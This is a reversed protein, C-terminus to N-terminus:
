ETEKPEVGNGGCVSCCKYMSYLENGTGDCYHCLEKGQEINLDRIVNDAHIGAHTM